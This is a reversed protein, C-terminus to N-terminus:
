HFHGEPIEVLPEAALKDVERRLLRASEDDALHRFRARLFGSRDILFHADEVKNTFLENFDRNVIALARFVSEKHLPVFAGAIEPCGPGGVVVHPLKKERTVEDARAMGGAALDSAKCDGISLVIPTGRLKPIDTREGDPARLTIDPAVLFQLVSETTLLRSQYTTSMIRLLNILDWKEDETLTSFIPKM